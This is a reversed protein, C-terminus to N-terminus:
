KPSHSNVSKEKLGEGKNSYSKTSEPGVRGILGFTYRPYHLLELRGWSCNYLIFAGTNSIYVCHYKVVAKPQLNLFFKKTTKLKKKPIAFKPAM